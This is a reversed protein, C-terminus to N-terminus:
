GAARALAAAGGLVAAAVAGIATRRHRGLFSVPDHRMAKDGFAGHAGHDADDDRPEWVNSGYRPADKDTQQSQVGTKALYWDGFLPAIRNGLVTYATAIGVWANRRPHEATFRIQRACVEPQVIPPVPMPHKPMKNLNWNFQTTNVGPLTVMGVTVKSGSARLETIVSETVGKVAHKAGCYASQLPIARYAMASSVNVISGHDRPRMLRLATRMGNVQGYYTVDNMRRFEDPSTDWFYCLSGAFADNVWVDIPGLEAEIKDAAADLAEGDAVDVAVTVCRGGAAAVDTAAGALGADGRALVGVDYGARAFERV